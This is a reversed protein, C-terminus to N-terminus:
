SLARATTTTTTAASHVTSLSTYLAARREAHAGLLSHAFLYLNALTGADAVADLSFAHREVGDESATTFLTHPVANHIHAVLASVSAPCEDVVRAVLDECAARLAVLDVAGGGAHGQLVLSRVSCRLEEITARLAGMTMPASTAPEPKARQPRRAQLAQWYGRQHRRLSTCAESLAWSTTARAALDRAHAVDQRMRATFRRAPTTPQAVLRPLHMRPLLALADADGGGVSHASALWATSSAGLYLPTTVGAYLPPM